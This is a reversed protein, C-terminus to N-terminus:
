IQAIDEYRIDLVLLFCTKMRLGCTLVMKINEKTVEIERAEVDSEDTSEGM